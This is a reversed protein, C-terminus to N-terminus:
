TPHNEFMVKACSSISSRFSTYSEIIRLDKLLSNWFSPGRVSYAKAGTATRTRPVTMFKSDAHRTRIGGHVEMVPIYFHALSAQGEFYINKHCELAMHVNRRDNLMELKLSCHMDKVSTYRGALLITRCAQNQLLQLKSLNGLSTCMYVTDCYDFLPLILSKYLTLVTSRNLCENVKRIVGLKKAAKDAIYEVHKDFTLNCDLYVGLYKM